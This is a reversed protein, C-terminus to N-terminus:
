QVVEEPPEKTLDFVKDCHDCYGECVGEIDHITLSNTCIPCDPCNPLKKIM